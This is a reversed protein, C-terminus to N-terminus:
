YFRNKKEISLMRHYLDRDDQTLYIKMLDLIREGGNESRYGCWRQMQMLGSMDSHGRLMYVVVLGKFTLGRGLNYGGHIIAKLSPEADYDVIDDTHSNLIRHNTPRSIEQLFESVFPLIQAFDTTRPPRSNSSGFRHAIIREPEDTSKGGGELVLDEEGDDGIGNFALIQPVFSVEWRNRLRDEFPKSIGHRQM